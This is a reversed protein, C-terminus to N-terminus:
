ASYGMRGIMRRRWPTEEGVIGNVLGGSILADRVRSECLQCIAGDDGSCRERAMTRTVEGNEFALIASCGPLVDGVQRVLDIAPAHTSLGSQCLKSLGHAAVFGAGYQSATVAPAIVTCANIQIRAFVSSPGPFKDTVNSLTTPRVGGIPSRRDPLWIKQSNGQPKTTLDGPKRVTVNYAIHPCAPLMSSRGALGLARGSAREDLTLQDSSM